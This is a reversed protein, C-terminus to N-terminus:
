ITKKGQGLRIIFLGTVVLLLALFVKATLVEGLLLASLLVGFVPILNISSSFASMGVTQILHYRLIYGLATPFVGLYVLGLWSDLSFAQAPLGEFFLSLALLTFSSLGLILTSLRMPPFGTLKRILLGSSVYCASALIVALQGLLNQGLGHIAEQGVLVLIGCFGLLAGLVKATNMRDDRTTFHSGVLAMFPGVGMLLSAVGANIFQEAWSILFFPVVVNLLMIVSILNWQRGSTPWVMGKMMALPLLVLFAIIVRLTALWLPGTEEVVVKIALFASGWIIALLLLLGLDLATPRRIAHIAIKQTM